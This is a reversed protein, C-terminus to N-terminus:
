GQRSPVHTKNKYMQEKEVLTGILYKELLAYSDDGHRTSRFAITADRGAYELIIYEGGLHHSLFDTVDYVKDYIVLWCDDPSIHEAVQALTYEPLQKGSVNESSVISSTPNSNTNSNTSISPVNSSQSWSQTLHKIAVSIFATVQNEFLQGVPWLTGVSQAVSAVQTVTEMTSVNVQAM